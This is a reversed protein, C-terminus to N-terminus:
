AVDNRLPHRLELIKIALQERNTESFNPKINSISIQQSLFVSNM